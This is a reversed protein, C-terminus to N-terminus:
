DAQYQDMTFARNTETKAIVKPGPRHSTPASRGSRRSSNIMNLAM